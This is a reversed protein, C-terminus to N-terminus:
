YDFDIEEVISPGVYKGNEFILHEKVRESHFSGHSFLSNSCGVWVRRPMNERTFVLNENTDFENFCACVVGTYQSFKPRLPSNSGAWLETGDETEICFSGGLYFSVYECLQSFGDYELRDPMGLKKLMQEDVKRCGLLLFLLFYTESRILEIKNPDHINDKHFYGNRLKAYAYM